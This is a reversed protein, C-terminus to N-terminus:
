EKQLQLGQPVHALGEQLILPANLPMAPVAQSKKLDELKKRKSQVKRAISNAKAEELAIKRKFEDDLGSNQSVLLDVILKNRRYGEYYEETMSVLDILHTKLLLDRLPALYTDQTPTQLYAYKRGPTSYKLPMFNLEVIKKCQDVLICDFLSIKHTHIASLYTEKMERFAQPTLMDAKSIVLVLNCVKGLEKMADLDADRVSPRPALLFICCHIRKDEVRRGKEEAMHHEEYRNMVLNRFPVWDHSPGGIADGLGGAEYVTFNVAVLGERLRCRTASISVPTKAPQFEPTTDLIDALPNSTCAMDCVERFLGEDESLIGPQSSASSSVAATSAPVGFLHSILSSKGSYGEGCVLVNYDIGSEEVDRIIQRPICEVLSNNEEMM